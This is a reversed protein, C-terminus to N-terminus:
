RYDSSISLSTTRHSPGGPARGFGRCRSKLIRHKLTTRPTFGAITSGCSASCVAARRQMRIRGPEAACSGCESHLLGHRSSSRAVLRWKARDFSNAEGSRFTRDEAPGPLTSPKAGKATASVDVRTGREVLVPQTPASRPEASHRERSLGACAKAPCSRLRCQGRAPKRECGHCRDCECGRPRLRTCGDRHGRPRPVFWPAPRNSHRDGRSPRRARRGKCTSWDASRGWDGAPVYAAVSVPGEGDNGRCQCQRCGPM